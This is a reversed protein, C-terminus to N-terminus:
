EKRTPRHATPQPSRPSANSPKSPDEVKRAISARLGGVVRSLRDAQNFHSEFTPRDIFGINHVVHLLSRLDASSAKAINIFHLYERTTGREYGEAINSMVSVSSRRMQDCLARDQQVPTSRTLMYISTTMDSALQWAILDEFGRIRPKASDSGNVDDGGTHIENM